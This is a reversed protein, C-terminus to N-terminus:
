KVVKSFSNLFIHQTPLTDGKTKCNKNAQKKQKRLQNKKKVKSKQM